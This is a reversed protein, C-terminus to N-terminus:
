DGYPELKKIQQEYKMSWYADAEEFLNELKDLDAEEYEEPNEDMDIMIHLALGLKFEEDSHDEYVQPFDDSEHKELTVGKNRGRIVQLVIEYVLLVAVALILFCSIWFSM